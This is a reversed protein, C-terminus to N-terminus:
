EPEMLGQLIFIDALNGSHALPTNLAVSNELPEMDKKTQLTLGLLM